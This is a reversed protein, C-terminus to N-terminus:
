KQKAEAVRGDAAKVPIAKAAAIVRVLGRAAMERMSPVSPCHSDCFSDYIPRYFVLLGTECNEPFVEAMLM